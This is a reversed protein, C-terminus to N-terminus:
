PVPGSIQSCVSPETECFVGGKEEALKKAKATSNTWLAVEHGADLLHEAMPYGMLGLGLFGLKAM